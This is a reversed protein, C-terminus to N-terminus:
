SGARHRGSEVAVGRHQPQHRQQLADGRLVLQERQLRQHVVGAQGLGRQVAHQLLEFAGAQQPAFAIAAVVAGAHAQAAQGLVQQEVVRQVARAM